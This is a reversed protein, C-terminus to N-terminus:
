GAGERLGRNAETRAKPAKNLPKGWGRFTDRHNYKLSIWEHISIYGNYARGQVPDKIKNVMKQLQSVEILPNLSKEM